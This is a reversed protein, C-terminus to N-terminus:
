APSGVLCGGTTDVDPTLVTWRERRAGVVATVRALQEDSVCFALLSPGAGSVVAPIGETRLAALLAAAAPMAPGRARQHLREQTATFLLDPRRTLAEVLLAARAATFAADGHPVSAPLMARAASTPLNFDPVCAV